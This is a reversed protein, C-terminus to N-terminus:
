GRINPDLGDSFYENDGEPSVDAFPLVAISHQKPQAADTAPPEPPFTYGVRARARRTGDPREDRRRGAGAATEVSRKFSEASQPTLM